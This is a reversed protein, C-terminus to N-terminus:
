LKEGCYECYQRVSSQNFAKGCGACFRQTEAGTNNVNKLVNKEKLFITIFLFIVNLFTLYFGIGFVSFISGSLSSFPNNSEGYILFGLYITMIAAMLIKPFRMPRLTKSISTTLLVIFSCIPMVLLSLPILAYDLDHGKMQDMYKLADIDLGIIKAASVTQGFSDIWPLFFSLLIVASAVITLIKQTPNIPKM